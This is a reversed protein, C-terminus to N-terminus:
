KRIVAKTPCIQMCNGCHLCNEKKITAKKDMIICDQPCVTLCKGCGVCKDTIFYGNAKAGTGGFSFSFREIPKKSLDFWEGSGVYLCFVALASRSQETPYIEHMYPNKDLLRKLRESGIEKVEGHVSIAVCSLTNEGKIGTLSLYGNTKLRKYFNKGKATLFYLGNEDYDMIDIACTVPLGNEDNTAIITTHIQEQLYKFIKITEM